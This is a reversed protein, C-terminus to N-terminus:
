RSSGDDIWASYITLPNSKLVPVDSWPPPPPPPTVGGIIWFNTLFSFIQNFNTLTAHGVQCCSPLPQSCNQNLKFNNLKVKDKYHYRNEWKWTQPLWELPATPGMNKQPPAPPPALATSKRCVSFFKRCVLFNEPRRCKLDGGSGRGEVFKVIKRRTEVIPPPPCPGGHGREAVAGSLREWYGLDWKETLHWLRM